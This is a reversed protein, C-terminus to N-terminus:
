AEAVQGDQERLEALQVLSWAVEFQIAPNDPQQDALNQWAKVEREQAAIREVATTARASARL